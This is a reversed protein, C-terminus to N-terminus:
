PGALLQDPFAADLDVALHRGEPPADVGLPVADGDVADGDGDPGAEHVVQEVLRGLHDGGGVVRLTARGHGIEDGIFGPDEGDAPEVPVGFTAEEQGGGTVAG